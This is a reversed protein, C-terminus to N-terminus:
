LLEIDEPSGIVIEQAIKIYNPDRCVYVIGLGPDIYKIMFHDNLYEDVVEFIQELIEDQNELDNFSDDNLLLNKIQWNIGDNTDNNIRYQGKIFGAITENIYEVKMLDFKIIKSVREFLFKFESENTADFINSKSFECVYVSGESGAYGRAIKYSETLYVGSGEVSQYRPTDLHFESINQTPSGHYLKM